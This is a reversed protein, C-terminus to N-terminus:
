CIQPKELTSKKCILWYSSDGAGLFAFRWNFSTISSTTLSAIGLAAMSGVTSFNSAFSVAAYQIPRKM